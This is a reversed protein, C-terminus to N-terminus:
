PKAPAADKMAADLQALDSDIVKLTKSRWNLIELAIRPDATSTDVALSLDALNRTSGSQLTEWIAREFFHQKAYLQSYRTLDAHDLYDVAHNAVAADWAMSKLTPTSDRFLEGAERLTAVRTDNTGRGVKLDDLTRQLLADWAQGNENTFQLCHAVDARNGAIEQEIEEKARAGEHRHEVGLVFQELALATLISLVIMAYQALFEKLSEPLKETPEVHM